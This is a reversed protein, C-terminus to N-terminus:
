IEETIKYKYTARVKECFDQIDNLPTAKSFVLRCDGKNKHVELFHREKLADFIISGGILGFFIMGLEYRLGSPALILEVLGWVGVLAFVAGIVLSVIPRHEVRGHKLIIHDIDAVAVFLIVKKGDAEALGRPSVIINKCKLVPLTQETQV